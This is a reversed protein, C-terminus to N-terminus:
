AWKIQLMKPYSHYDNTDTVSSTTAWNCLNQRDYEACRFYLRCTILFAVPAEQLRKLLQLKVFDQVSKFQSCSLSFIREETGALHLGGSGRAIEWCANWREIETALHGVGNVIFTGVNHAQYKMSIVNPRIFSLTSSLSSWPEFTATKELHPCFSLSAKIWRRVIIRNFSAFTRCVYPLLTASTSTIVNQSPFDLFFNPNSKNLLYM